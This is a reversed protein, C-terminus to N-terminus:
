LLEPVTIAIEEELTEFLTPGEPKWGLAYGRNAVARSNTGTSLLHFTVEDRTVSKPEPSDILGTAHLLKALAKAVDGWYFEASAGFYFRAFADTNTDKGSLALDFVLGYLNMLDEIYVSNWINTGTGIYILERRKAAVRIM